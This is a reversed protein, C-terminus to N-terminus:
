GSEVMEDANKDEEALRNQRRERTVTVGGLLLFFLASLLLYRDITGNTVTESLPFDEQTVLVCETKGFLRALFRQFIQRHRPMSHPYRVLRYFVFRYLEDPPIYYDEVKPDTESYDQIWSVEEGNIYTEQAEWSALPSGNEDAPYANFTPDQLVWRNEIWVEVTTHAAHCNGPEAFLDVERSYYDFGTLASMYLFALPDCHADAGDRFSEYIAVPDRTTVELGIGRARTRTWDRLRSTPSRHDRVVFDPGFNLEPGIFELIRVGDRIFQPHTQTNRFEYVMFTASEEQITPGIGCPLYSRVQLLVLFEAVLLVFAISLLWVGPSFRKKSRSQTMSQM